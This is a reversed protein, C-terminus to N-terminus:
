ASRRGLVHPPDLIARVERMMANPSFPKELYASTAADFQMPTRPRDAYGSMYLVKMAPRSVVLREALQRGSMRPMVVDTLLLHITAAHQECLLFADGASQADFAIFAGPTAMVTVGGALALNCEGHRLAQCAL